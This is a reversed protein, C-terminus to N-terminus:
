MRGKLKSAAADIKDRDGGHDQIIKRAQERTLGYRRTVYAVEYDDISSVKSRERQDTNTKDDSVAGSVIRYAVEIGFWLNQEAFGTGLMAVTDTILSLGLLITKPFV